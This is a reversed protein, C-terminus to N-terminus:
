LGPNLHIRCQGQGLLCFFFFSNLGGGNTITVSFAAFNMFADECQM